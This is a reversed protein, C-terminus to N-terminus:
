YAELYEGHSMKKQIIERLLQVFFPRSTRSSLFFILSFSYLLLNSEYIWTSMRGHSSPYPKPSLLTNLSTALSVLGALGVLEALEM